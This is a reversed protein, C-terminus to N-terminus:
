ICLNISVSGLPVGFCFFVSGTTPTLHASAAQPAASSAVTSFM